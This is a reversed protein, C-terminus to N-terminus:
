SSCLSSRHSSFENNTKGDQSDKKKRHNGVMAELDRCLLKEEGKEWNEGPGIDLFRDKEIVDMMLLNRFQIAREAMEIDLLVARSSNGIDLETLGAMCRIRDAFPGLCQLDDSIDLRAFPNWPLPHIFKRSENNKGVPNVDPAVYVARGTVAKRSSRIPRGFHDATVAIVHFPANRTVLFSPDAGVTIRAM